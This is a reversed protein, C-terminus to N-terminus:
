VRSVRRAGYGPDHVGRGCFLGRDVAVRAGELDLDCFTAAVEACQAVGYGTAGIEDLPIGGIVRPLGVARGIEDHVWGMCQENTGMDPGPIYDTLQAIACAFTRVLAEKQPAPM